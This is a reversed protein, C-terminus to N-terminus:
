RVSRLHSATPRRVANIWGEMRNLFGMLAAHDDSGVRALREEAQGRGDACAEDADGTTDRTWWSALGETTALAQHVKAQPAYIGLRHRIDSM